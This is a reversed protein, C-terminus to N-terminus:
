GFIGAPRIATTYLGDQGNAALVLEEAEAKTRNYEDSQKEPVPMREDCDVLDTGDYVNGASSTYVVKKVRHAAAAALVTKTGVVNVKYFLGPPPSEKVNPAVTHFICTAGSQFYQNPGSQM